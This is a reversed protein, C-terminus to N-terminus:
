EKNLFKAKLFLTFRKMEEQYQKAKERQDKDNPNTLSELGGSQVRFGYAIKGTTLKVDDPVEQGNYFENLLHVIESFYRRSEETVRKRLEDDHIWDEQEPEEPYIEVWPAM